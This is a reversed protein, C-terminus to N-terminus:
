PMSSLAPGQAPTQREAVIREMRAHFAPATAPEPRLADLVIDAAMTTLDHATRAAFIGLVLAGAAMSSFWLMPVSSMGGSGAIGMEAMRGMLATGSTNAVYLTAALLGYSVIASSTLVCPGRTRIAIWAGALGLAVVMWLSLANSLEYSAALDAFGAARLSRARELLTADMFWSMQPVYGPVEHTLGEGHSALAAVVAVYFVGFGFSMRRLAGAGDM